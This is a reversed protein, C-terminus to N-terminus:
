LRDDLFTWLISFLLQQCLTYLKLPSTGRRFPRSGVNGAGSNGPGMKGTQEIKHSLLSKSTIKKRRSGVNGAGSNGPGMKGTQEIKCIMLIDANWPRVYM